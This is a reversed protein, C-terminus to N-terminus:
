VAESGVDVPKAEAIPMMKEALPEKAASEGDGAELTMGDIASDVRAHGSKTATEVTPPAAVTEEAVPKETETATEETDPATVDTQAETTPPSATTMMLGVITKL